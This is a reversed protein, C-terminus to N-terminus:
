ARERNACFFAILGVVVDGLVLLGLTRAGVALLHDRTTLATAWLAVGFATVVTGVVSWVVAGAVAAPGPLGRWTQPGLVLSLIDLALDLM